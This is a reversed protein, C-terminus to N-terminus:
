GSRRRVGNPHKLDVGVSRRGRDLVNGAGPHSRGDRRSEARDVRVVSAGMDSLVMDASRVPGISALEVVTVGDLPGAM